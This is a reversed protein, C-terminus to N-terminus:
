SISWSHKSGQNKKLFDSWGAYIYKIICCSYAFNEAEFLLHLVKNTCLHMYQCISLFNIKRVGVTHVPGIFYIMFTTNTHNWLPL